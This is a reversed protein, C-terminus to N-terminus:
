KNNTRDKLYKFFNSTPDLVMMDSKNKFSQKYADMSRWFAFLEPDKQFAVAYTATAQSDGDGM